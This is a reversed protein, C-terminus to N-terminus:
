RGGKATALLCLAVLAFWAMRAVCAFAGCGLQVALPTAPQVVQM